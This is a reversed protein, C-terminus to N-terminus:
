KREEGSQNSLLRIMGYVGAGLGLFLGIILFLPSTGTFRDLWMGGFLGLLIGGVLTSLIGSMLAMAKYPRKGTSM